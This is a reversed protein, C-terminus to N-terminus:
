RPSSVCSGSAPRLSRAKALNGVTVRLPSGNEQPVVVRADGVIFGHVLAVIAYHGITPVEFSFRGAEDSCSALQLNDNCPSTPGRPCFSQLIIAKRISQGASDVVIGEVRRTSNMALVSQDSSGPPRTGSTCAIVCATAAIATQLLRM